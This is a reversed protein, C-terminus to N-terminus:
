LQVADMGVIQGIGPVSLEGEVFRSSLLTHSHGRLGLIIEDARRHHPSRRDFWYIFVMTDLYVRSM